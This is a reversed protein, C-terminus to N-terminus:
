FDWFPIMSGAACVYASTATFTASGNNTLTNSSASDNGNNDFLWWGVMNAGNSANCPDTYLAAAEAGSLARSWIRVDDIAGNFFQVTKAPNVGIVFDDSSGNMSTLLGSTVGQSVGNFYFDETGAALNRIWVFHYWVGTSMASVTYNHFDDNSGNSSVYMQVTTNAAIFMDYQKHSGISSGKAVIHNSDAFDTSKAWASITFNGSFELGTQSADSISWYQSSARSLATAHTNTTLAFAPTGVFFNLVSVLCVLAALIRHKM